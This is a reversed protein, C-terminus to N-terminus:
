SSSFSNAKTLTQQDKGSVQGEQHLNVLSFLFLMPPKPVILFATLILPFNVYIERATL